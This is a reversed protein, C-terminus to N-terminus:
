PFSALLEAASSVSNPELRQEGVEYGSFLNLTRLKLGVEEERRYFPCLSLVTLTGTLILRSPTQLLSQAGGPRYAAGPGNRHGNGGVNLPLGTGSFVVRSVALFTGNEQTERRGERAFM